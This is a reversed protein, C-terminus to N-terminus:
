DIAHESRRPHIPQAPVRSARWASIWGGTWADLGADLEEARLRLEVSEGPALADPQALRARIRQREFYLQHIEDSVDDRLSTVQRLERSLDVADEPYALGGLEWDLVFSARYALGEDRDRDFLERTDGSVYTQDRSHGRGQDVDYGGRLELSPLLARRRLGQWLGEARGVALGVRELARGRIAAVPPDPPLEIPAGAAAGAGADARERGEVSVGLRSASGEVVVRSEARAEVPSAGRASAQGDASREAQAGVPADVLALLGTRCVAVARASPTASASGAAPLAVALAVDSCERLGAPSAARAFRATPAPAVHLGHDTALWVEGAAGFVLRRMMAGPPLVPRLWRWRARRPDGGDAELALVAIADAYVLYLRTQEPDVVLDVAGDEVLPRPLPWLMRDVIRLGAKAEIGRTRVLGEGGHTWIEVLRPAPPGAASPGSAESRPRRFAIRHVAQDSSGANLTQFAGGSSWYAGSDTAVLLAGGASELRWVRASAEGDRLTRRQPRADPSWFFLGEQTGIWLRGSADFALDSVVPTQARTWAGERWWSVGAEDGVALGAQPASALATLPEGRSPLANVIQWRALALPSTQAAEPELGGSPSALSLGSAILVAGTCAAVAVLGVRTRALQAGSSRLACWGRQRVRRATAARADIGRGQRRGMRTAM